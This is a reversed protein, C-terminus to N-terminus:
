LSVNCGWASSSKSRICQRPKQCYWQIHAPELTLREPKPNAFLRSWVAAVWVLIEAGACDFRGACDVTTGAGVKLKPAGIVLLLQEANAVALTAAVQEVFDADGM